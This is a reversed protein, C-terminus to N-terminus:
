VRERCSARGIELRSRKKEAELSASELIQNARKEAQTAGSLKAKALNLVETSIRTGEVASKKLTSIGKVELDVSKKAEDVESLQNYAVELLNESYIAMEEALETDKALDGARVNMLKARNDLKLSVLSAFKVLIDERGAFFENFSTEGHGRAEKFISLIRMLDKIQQILKTKQGTLTSVEASVQKYQRNRQETIDSVETVLKEKVRTLENIESLVKPSVGVKGQFLESEVNKAIDSTRDESDKNLSTLGTTFGSM